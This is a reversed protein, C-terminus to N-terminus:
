SIDCDLIDSLKHVNRTFSGKCKAKEKKLDDLEM